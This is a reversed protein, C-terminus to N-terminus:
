LSQDKKTKSKDNSGNSRWCWSVGTFFQNGANRQVEPDCRARAASTMMTMVWTFGPKHCRLWMQGYMSRGYRLTPGTLSWQAVESRHLM